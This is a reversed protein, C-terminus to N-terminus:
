YPTRVKPPNFTYLCITQSVAWAGWEPAGYVVYCVTTSMIDGSGWFRLCLRGTGRGGRGQLCPHRYPIAIATCCILRKSSFYSWTLLEGRLKRWVRWGFRCDFSLWMLYGALDCSWWSVQHTPLRWERLRTMWFRWAVTSLMRLGILLRQSSRM